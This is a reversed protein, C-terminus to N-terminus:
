NVSYSLWARPRPSVGTQNTTPNCAEGGEAEVAGGGTGSISDGEGGAGCGKQGLGRFQEIDGRGAGQCASCFLGFILSIVDLSYNTASSCLFGQGDILGVYAVGM